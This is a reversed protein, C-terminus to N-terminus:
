FHKWKKVFCADTKIYKLFRLQAKQWSLVLPMIVAGTQSSLAKEKDTM